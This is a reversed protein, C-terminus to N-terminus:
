LTDQGRHSVKLCMMTLDDNPEAGQRYAEVESSMTEIVQRSSNHKMKRLVELLREDGFQEQGPNEAENLGDTYIFLPCDSISEISEGEFEIGPWLGIPANPNVEMFCGRQANGGIIPPNHGANCYDLHGTTLNVLGIFMTVFMGQENNETLADNMQSVIEAPMKKQAALTRFLRTVQAMFLSAPVGKGSVDGVCFYLLDGLLLYGYLEGGVERAPRMSAYLDLGERDPFVNPVMSMQIDRAIRLESEIREKATTTEELQDYAARLQRLSRRRNIMIVILCIIIILALVVMVVLFIVWSRQVERKAEIVQLDSNMENLDDEMILNNQKEQEKVAEKLIGYATALDGTYDCIGLQIAYRDETDLEEQSRKMAEKARGNVTMAAMELHIEYMDCIKDPPNASKLELYQRYCDLVTKGDHRNFALIGKMTLAYTLRYSNKGSAQLAMDVLEAAREPSDDTLMNAYDTYISALDIKNEGPVERIAEDFFKSALPINNRYWYIIGMLYSGNYYEETHRNRKMEAMLEKAKKMARYYHGKNMDFSVIDILTMYYLHHDFEPQGKLYSILEDAKDYLKKEDGDIYYRRFEISMRHSVSDQGKLEEASLSGNTLLAIALFLNRIIVSPTIHIMNGQSFYHICNPAFIIM